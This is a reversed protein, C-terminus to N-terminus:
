KLEALKVRVTKAKAQHMVKLTIEDGPKFKAVLNALPNDEAIKQGNIELIIDNEVLGAKDAPSGPIVALDIQNQGRVIIAGYDVSLKNADAIAKNIIVYRVGLWPRIIRGNKKVSEITSKVENIPIAFGINQAGQAMATNIGIVQGAINLLPGGSNGPNISADTQIVNVLQESGIAMGGATVSRALGSIVGTSVTNRFEGLANGIAVVTQGVKLSSSDGLEVTPLNAASIKLVALDIIPDQAVVKAPYKKEDNMLVTYDAEPDVIVHKNTVIFGDATIIFGSGGGIERKVTGGQDPQDNLKTEPVFFNPFDNGFFQRFFESGFPNNYQRINPLEKTIIISVVAPSVKDVATIVASEESVKVIKEKAPSSKSLNFLNALNLQGTAMAGAWFGFSAGFISSIIISVALIAIFSKKLNNDM